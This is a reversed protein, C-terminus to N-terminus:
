MHQKMQVCHTGIIGPISARLTHLFAAIFSEARKTGKARDAGRARMAHGYFKFISSTCLWYSTAKSTTTNKSVPQSVSSCEVMSRRPCIPLFSKGPRLSIFALNPAHQHTTTPTPSLITESFFYMKREKEIIHGPFWQTRRKWWNRQTITPQWGPFIDFKYSRAGETRCRQSLVTLM